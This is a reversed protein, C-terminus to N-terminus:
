TWIEIDFKLSSLLLLLACCKPFDSRLMVWGIPSCGEGM